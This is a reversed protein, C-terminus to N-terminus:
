RHRFSFHRVWLPDVGDGAYVGGVSKVDEGTYVGATYVAGGTAGFAAAAPWDQALSGVQKSAVHAAEGRWVWRVAVRWVWRAAGCGLMNAHERVRECAHAACM